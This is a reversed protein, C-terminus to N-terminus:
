EASNYILFSQPYIANLDIFFKIYWVFYIRVIWIDNFFNNHTFM